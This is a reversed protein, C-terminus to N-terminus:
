NPINGDDIYRTLSDWQNITYRIAKGIASDKATKTLNNDCWQKLDELLPKSKKLRLLYRQEITLGKFQKELAYLRAFKRLATQAMGM